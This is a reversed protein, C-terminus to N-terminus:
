RYCTTGSKKVYDIKETINTMKHHKTQFIERDIGDLESQKKAIIEDIIKQHRNQLDDIVKQIESFALQNEKGLASVSIFQPNKKSSKISEIKADRDKVHKYVDIYKIKLRESVGAGGELYIEKGTKNDTYKGIELTTNAQWWATAMFVYVLGLIAFLATVSWILKKRRKLVSFLERLDIKDEEIYQTNNQL